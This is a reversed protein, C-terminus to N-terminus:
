LLLLLRYDKLSRVVTAPTSTSSSFAVRRVSKYALTQVQALAKSYAEVDVETFVGRQLDSILALGARGGSVYLKPRMRQM